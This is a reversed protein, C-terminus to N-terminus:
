TFLVGPSFWLGENAPPGVTAQCPSAVRHDDHARRPRRLAPPAFGAQAAAPEHQVSAAITGGPPGHM